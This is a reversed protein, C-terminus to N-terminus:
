LPLNAMRDTGPDVVPRVMVVGQVRVTDGHYEGLTDGRILIDEPIYQIDEITVLPYVQAFLIGSFALFFLFTLLKKM